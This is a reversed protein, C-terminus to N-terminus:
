PQQDNDGNSNSDANNVDNQANDVASVATQVQQNAGQISNVSGPTATVQQGTSSSTSINSNGGNNAGAHAGCAVLFLSLLLLATTALSILIRRWTNRKIRAMFNEMEQSSGYRYLGEKERGREIQLAKLM